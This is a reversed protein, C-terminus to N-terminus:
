WLRGPRDSEVVRHHEVEFQEQISAWAEGNVAVPPGDADAGVVALVLVSSLALCLLRSRSVLGQRAHIGFMPIKQDKQLSEAITLARRLKLTWGTEVSILM